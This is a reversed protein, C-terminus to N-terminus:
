LNENIRQFVAAAEARTSNKQPAFTGDSNGLLIKKYTLWKVADKAYDSISDGDSYDATEPAYTSRGNYIAYRYVIAAMQERTIKANPEFTTETVGNVIKNEQAWAVAKAYYAGNDVDTFNATGVQPKGETRHLVTVFMARTVDTEPEFLNVETGNMLGKEYAYIVYDYFWDNESVDIFPNQTKKISTNKDSTISGGKGPSPKDSESPTPDPTPVVPDGSDTGGIVAYASEGDLTAAIYGNVSKDSTLLNNEDIKATGDVTRVNWDIRSAAASDDNVTITKNDKTKIALSLQGAAGAAIAKEGYETGDLCIVTRNEPNSIAKNTLSLTIPVTKNGIEDEAYVMINNYALSADADVTIEFEGDKGDKGVETSKLEADGACVRVIAGNDSIGKVTIDNEFFEGNNPSSIMLRPPLTDTAFLYQQITSDGKNTKGRFTIKHTGDKVDSLKITQGSSITGSQVGDDLTWEGSVDIDSSVSIEADASAVTDVKGIQKAGQATMVVNAKEPEPMCLATSLTEASEIRVGDTVTYGKLGVVYNKEASLGAEATETTYKGPKEEDKLEYPNVENGKEDRTVTKTYHGGVTITNKEIKEADFDVDSFITTSYKGKEDVEYINVTYGKYKAPDLGSLSITCDGGSKISFKPPQPQNENKHTLKQAADVIPNSSKDNTTGVVRITYDGSPMNKPIEIQISKATANSTSALPYSKVESKKEDAFLDSNKGAPVEAAYVAVSDFRDLQTGDWSVTMKDKDFEASTISPLKEMAYLTVSSSVPTKLTLNKGFKDKDTISITVTAKKATEDVWSLLANANTNVKDDASKATDVMVLKAGDITINSAWNQAIQKSPAFFTVTIVGNKENYSGFNITHTKKDAQSSISATTPSDLLTIGDTSALTQIRNNMKMYLTRKNKADRYVPIDMSNLAITPEPADYKGFAFDVDGGWYYTIGADLKIVHLAGWIKEANIGLEASGIETGGFLPIKDPISVRARAFGEWFYKGTSKNQEVIISGQGEIVDFISLVLQAAFKLKPYWQCDIGAYDILEVNAIKVDSMAISLARPSISVDGRASLVDFLAFQGSLLLTIPPVSSSPYITEYLNDIGGGAGKIWFIGFGDVNIGPTFGGAYFYLKDPIPIGNHSRLRIEAEMQFALMDATGAVGITTEGDMVKLNLTGEISPLGDAYSPIGVEVSTNFGIFGGGFLIDHIYLSLSGGEAEEWAEQDKAYREQVDRLQEPTYNSKALKLQVAEMASTERESWKYNSPILFDPSLQAGFAIVRKKPTNPGIVDDDVLAMQGFQCYRFEMIMGAITQATSAAGPWMLTIANTNAVSNEVNEAPEGDNAYQLLTSKSGNEFSSIACVGSWVKTRAGTTYVEGDIDTNIVQDKTGPNEVSVTVTGKEIDLCDSINITNKAKKDITELATAEAEVLNGKNDYKLSFDGRLELLAVNQADRLMDKYEKEDRYAKLNYNDGGTKEVTVVGYSGGRYAINDSVNFKLAESTIDKKAADTMDFVIQYTGVPMDFDLILDATNNKADLLFNQVTRDPSGDLAKIKVSYDNTNKLLNFNQGALYIHRTGSTYIIEPSLSLFSVRDGEAGPCLLYASRTGIQKESLLKGDTGDVDFCRLEIKRYDAANLPEANMKFTVQREEGPNMSMIEVRYPNSYSAATDLKGSLDYPSIGEQPYVAVAIQKLSNQSINKIQASLEFDGNVGGSIQSLYADKEENLQMAALQSSFNISIKDANNVTANSYVGYNTAIVNASGDAAVEGMDFYLAYASDATLYKENYPNTFNLTKDPTFDFVTAALNNWHGFALSYPKVIKDNVSANVTYATVTPSKPDDYGFLANNFAADDTNDILAESQVQNYKGDKQTLEYVAFDQYGLASDLMVRAKVEAARNDLSRVSYSIQVMGHIDSKTNQLTVTQTFELGDVSWKATINDSNKTLTVGSTNKGLFGYSRGFIYDETKGDRKVRFTTYSTDFNDSPYLLFKNNDAKNLKDGEVTDILFGGNKESVKVSIYGDSIEAYGVANAAAALTQMPVACLLVTLALAFSIIKYFRRM